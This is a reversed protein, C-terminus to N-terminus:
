SPSGPPAKAPSSRRRSTLSTPVDLGDGPVEAGDIGLEKDLDDIGEAAAVVSLGLALFLSMLQSFKQVTSGM